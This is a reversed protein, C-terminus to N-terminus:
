RIPVPRGRGGEALPLGVTGGAVHGDGGEAEAEGGAGARRGKTGRLRHQFADLYTYIVPTIYLTILQSFAL